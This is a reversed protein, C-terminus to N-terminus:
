ATLESNKREWGQRWAAAKEYWQQLSEGTRPPMHRARYFPNNVMHQRRLRATAGQARIDSLEVAQKRWLLESLLANQLV